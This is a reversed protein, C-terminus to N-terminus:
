RSNETFKGSKDVSGYREDLKVEARGNHFWGASDYKLDIVVKGGRDIYGWKGGSSSNGDWRTGESVPSLGETFGSAGDFKAEIVLKGTRDIFGWKGSEVQIGALGEMFWNARQFRPKIVLSGETNVYGWAAKDKVAGLGGSFSSVESYQPPVIVKGDQRLYGWADGSQVAIVGDSFNVGMADYAPQALFKGDRNILGKKGDRSVVAVDPVGAEGFAESFGLSPEVIYKGKEDIYGNKGDVVVRARGNAFPDAHDFRPAIAVAMGTPDRYGHKGDKKFLVPGSARFREEQPADKRNLPFPFSGAENVVHVICFPKRDIKMAELNMQAVEQIETMIHIESAPNDSSRYTYCVCRIGNEDADFKRVFRFLSAKRGEFVKTGFLIERTRRSGEDLVLTLMFDPPDSFDLLVTPTPGPTGGTAHFGEDAAASLFLLMLLVSAAPLLTRQKM